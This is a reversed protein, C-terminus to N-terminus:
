PTKSRDVTTLTILNSTQNVKLRECLFRDSSFATINDSSYIELVAETLTKFLVLEGPFVVREFYWNHINTIRVIQVTSTKNQYSCLINLGRFATLAPV